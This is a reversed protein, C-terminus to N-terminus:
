SQVARGTGAPWPEAFEIADQANNLAIQQEGTRGKDKDPLGAPTVLVRLTEKLAELLKDRQERYSDRDIIASAVDERSATATREAARMKKWTLDDVNGTTFVEQVWKKHQEFWRRDEDTEKLKMPRREEPIWRLPIVFRGFGDVHAHTEMITVCCSYNPRGREGYDFMMGDSTFGYQFAVPADPGIAKKTHQLVAILERLKM